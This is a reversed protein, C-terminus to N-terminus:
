TGPLQKLVSHTDTLWDTLLALKRPQEAWQFADLWQQLTRLLFILLTMLAVAAASQITGSDLSAPIVNTGRGGQSFYGELSAAQWWFEKVVQKTSNDKLATLDNRTICKSICHSTNSSTIGALIVRQACHCRAAYSIVAGTTICWWVAAPPLFWVWRSLVWRSTTAPKLKFADAINFYWKGQNNVVLTRSTHKILWKQTQFFVFHNPM